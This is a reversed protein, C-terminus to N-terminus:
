KGTWSLDVALPIRLESATTMIMRMLHRVQEVEEEPCEIWVADHIAAVIRAGTNNAKLESHLRILALKLLHSEVQQLLTAKMIRKLKGSARMRFGRVRGTLPNRLVKALRQGAVLDEYMRDFYPEIGPYNGFFTRIMKDAQAEDIEKDLGQEKWSKNVERALATPGQGFIMGFNIPKAEERSALGLMQATEAHFDREENFLQMLAADQSLHALIRAQCAKWDAKILVCGEAAILFHRYRKRDINQVPPNSATIRGTSTRTLRWVPHLRDTSAGAELFRLDRILKRWRLIQEALLSRHNSALEELDDEDLRYYDGIGEPLAIGRNHFLWYVDKASFLNCRRTLAIDVDLAQLEQQAQELAAACGARDVQIGDLHLAVLASSVPLDVQRYLRCLDDDLEVNLSEAMRYILEADHSLSQYLFGPYDLAFLDGTMVPYDDEYEHVLANLNYGHDEDQGPALLYAMLKTDIIRDYQVDLDRLGHVEQIRKLGHVAVRFYKGTYLDKWSDSQVNQLHINGRTTAPGSYGIILSSDEPIFLPASLAVTDNITFQRIFDDIDYFIRM